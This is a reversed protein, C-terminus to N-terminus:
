KITLAQGINLNDPDVSPNAKKLSDVTVDYKKALSWFTDGKVVFHTKTSGPLNIPKGVALNEAEVGPNADMLERVSYGRAKAISYFTDGKQVTYTGGTRANPVHPPRAYGKIKIKLIERVTPRGPNQDIILLTDGRDEIVVWTHGYQPHWPAGANASAVDGPKAPKDGPIFEWGYDRAFNTAKDIGNGSSYPKNFVVKAYHNVLDVCQYGYAGDVDIWKGKVQNVWENLTTM